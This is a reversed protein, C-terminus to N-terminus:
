GDLEGAISPNPHGSQLGTFDLSSEGVDSPEASSKRASLRTLGAALIEALEAQAGKLDNHVAMVAAFQSRDLLLELTKL